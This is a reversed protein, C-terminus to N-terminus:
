VKKGGRKGRGAGRFKYGGTEIECRSFVEREHLKGSKGPRGAHNSAEMPALVSRDRKNHLIQREGALVINRLTLM